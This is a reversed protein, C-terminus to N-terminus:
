RTVGWEFPRYNYNDNAIILSRLKKGSKQLIAQFIDFKKFTHSHCLQYKAECIM